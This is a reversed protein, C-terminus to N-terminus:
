NNTNIKLILQTRSITPAYLMIAQQLQELRHPYILHERLSLRTGDRAELNILGRRDSGGALPLMFYYSALVEVVPMVGQLNEPVIASQNVKALNHWYITVEGHEQSRSSIQDPTVSVIQRNRVSAVVFWFLVVALIAGLLGPLVYVINFDGGLVNVVCAVAVVIGALGFLGCVVVRSLINEKFIFPEM